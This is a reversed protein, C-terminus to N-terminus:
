DLNIFKGANIAGVSGQGPNDVQVNALM